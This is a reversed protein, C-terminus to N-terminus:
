EASYEVIAYPKGDEGALVITCTQDTLSCSPHIRDGEVAATRYEVRLQHCCFDKPLYDSAMRVYGGNNVHRNTDIYSATVPFPTLDTLTEPMPIKRPVEKMPYPPEQTYRAVIEEPIRSPHGTQTDVFVWISNAYALVRGDADQLLFNRYGYFGKFASPWTCVTIEQSMAPREDVLIHWSNLLWAKQIQQLADWGVGLEESQFTCCDQFYNVIGTLSLRGTEDCESYRVKTQFTYM